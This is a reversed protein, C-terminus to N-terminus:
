TSAISCHEIGSMAKAEVVSRKEEGIDLKLPERYYAINMQAIFRDKTTAAVQLFLPLARLREEASLGRETPLAWTRSVVPPMTNVLSRGIGSM